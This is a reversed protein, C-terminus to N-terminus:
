YGFIIGPLWMAIKPFVVVLIVGIIQLGVFPIVSRYIDIITIEPPAVAKMYFLNYGFPPTLYASQMSLIFLIGFWIPDFGLGVILPLYLPVTIFLIASDDLFMGLIFYSALMLILVGHPSLAAGTVLNQILSLAGLGLYIKSFFVATICIWMLMGMVKTTAMLSERLVQWTLNRYIAACILAGFAGVASAETPSTVGLFILGLVLFILTGPLILAKLSILKGRWNVREEPAIPPGLHPQFFCRIGIYIIYIVALLLGPVLGAAFLKGVSQRALFAYMIMMVSPPILFGLAGGAQITGTIMRKDYGRKLMAPLAIIAMSVTAAGSVGVMAAISACILVTGMALGGRIGGMVKHIMAFLSDTIGSRQLVIGMFIFLPLAVLIFANALGFASHFMIEIGGVGWLWVAFVMAAIGLAFTLPVGMTMLLMMAGFMLGTIILPDIQPM